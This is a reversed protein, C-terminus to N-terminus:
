LDQQAASHRFHKGQPSWGAADPKVATAVAEEGSVESLPGEGQLPPSPAQALPIM